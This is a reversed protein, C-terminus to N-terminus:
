RYYTGVKSLKKMKQKNKIINKEIDNMLEYFDINESNYNSIFVKQECYPGETYRRGIYGSFANLYLEYGNILKEKINPFCNIFKLDSENLEIPINAKKTELLMCGKFEGNYSIFTAGFLYDKDLDIM